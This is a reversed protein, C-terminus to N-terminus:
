KKTMEVIVWIALVQLLVIILAICRFINQERSFKFWDWKSKGSTLWVILFFGAMIGFFINLIIETLHSVTANDLNAIQHISM